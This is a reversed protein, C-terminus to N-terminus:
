NEEEVPVAFNWYDPDFKLIEDKTFKTRFYEYEPKGAIFLEGTKINLNLYGEYSNKILKIYYLPEKPEEEIVTYGSLKMRILTEFSSTDRKDIWKEFETTAKGYKSMDAIVNFLRIELNDKNNEYWEAVCEQVKVRNDVPAKYKVISLEPFKDKYHGVTDIDLVYNDTTRVCTDSSNWSELEVVPDGNIFVYGLRGLEIMLYDYDQQTETHYIKM